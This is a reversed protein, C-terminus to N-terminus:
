RACFLTRPVGGGVVRLTKIERGTLSRLGEPAELVGPELEFCCRAFAGITERSTGARQKQLIRSDGGAHERREFEPANPLIVQWVGCEEGGCYDREVRM